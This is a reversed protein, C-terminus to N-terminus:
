ARRHRGRRAARPLEGLMATKNASSAGGQSLGAKMQDITLTSPAASRRRYLGLATWARSGADPDVSSYKSFQGLKLNYLPYFIATKAAPITRWDVDEFVKAAGYINVGYHLIELMRDFLFHDAQSFPFKAVRIAEAPATFKEYYLTEPPLFRLIWRIAKLLVPPDHRTNGYHRVWFLSQMGMASMSHNRAAEIVLGTHIWGVLNFTVYHMATPRRYEHPQSGNESFHGLPYPTQLRYLLRTMTADILDDRMAYVSLSAVSLDFYLAHNNTSIGEEQGQESVMYWEAMQGCWDMMKKVQKLTFAGSQELLTIADLVYYMDKWDILGTRDGDQAYKLNPLMGTYDDLFWTDVLKAGRQAYKINDTFYWALALTTVNDVVYWAETRDFRNNRDGAIVTGPARMGDRHIRRQEQWKSVDGDSMGLKSWQKGKVNDQMDKPLDGLQWHYPRASYYYRIDKEGDPMTTKNRVSYPGQTMGYKDAMSIIQKVYPTVTAADKKTTFRAKEEKLTQSDFVATFHKRVAPDPRAQKDDQLRMCLSKEKINNKERYKTIESLAALVRSQALDRAGARFCSERLFINQYRAKCQDSHPKYKAREKKGLELWAKVANRMILCEHSDGEEAFKAKLKDHAVDEYWCFFGEEDSPTLGTSIVDDPPFSWLRLVLGCKSGYKLMKATTMGVVQEENGEVVDSCSCQRSTEACIQGPKFMYSKNRQGYGKTSKGKEANEPKTDGLTFTETSNMHFAVQSEGKLPAHDLVAEMSTEKNLWETSQASHVRHYPIKAYREGAKSAVKLSKDLAEWADRTIFTNGDLIISWEYGNQKGDTIGDNRGENQSTLYFLKDEATKFSNYLNLDFCRLLIDSREVGARILSSYLLSFETENWIRNLIWKKDAGPFNAENDLAYQTNWRLQGLSQLPPMDNGVLRYLAVNQRIGGFRFEPDYIRSFEDAHGKVPLLLQLQAALVALLTLLRSLQM